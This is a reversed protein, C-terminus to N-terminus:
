LTAISKAYAARDMDAIDVTVQVQLGSRAPLLSKMKDSLAQSITKKIQEDRGSLLLLRAHFFGRNATNTGVSFQTVEYARAKIDVEQFHGTDVMAQNLAVLMAAPTTIGLNNTYEITLHPM